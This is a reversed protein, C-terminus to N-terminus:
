TSHINMYMGTCTYELLVFPVVPFLFFFEVYWICFYVNFYKFFVVVFSTKKRKRPIWVGCEEEKAKIKEKLVQIESELRFYMFFLKVYIMLLWLLVIRKLYLHFFWLVIYFFYTKTCLHVHIYRQVEQQCLEKTEQRTLHAAEIMSYQIIFLSILEQFSSEMNQLQKYNKYYKWNKSQLTEIKAVLSGGWGGGNGNLEETTSGRTLIFYILCIQM